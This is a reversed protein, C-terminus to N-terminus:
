SFEKRGAEGEMCGCIVLKEPGSVRATADANVCPEGEVRARTGVGGALEFYTGIFEVFCRGMREGSTAAM